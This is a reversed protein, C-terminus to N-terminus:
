EAKPNTRFAGVTAWEGAEGGTWIRARDDIGPLNAADSVDVETSDDENWEYDQLPMLEEADERAAEPSDGAVYFVAARHQEVEVRWIKM